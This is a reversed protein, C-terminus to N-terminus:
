RPIDYKEALEALGKEALEGEGNEFSEIGERIDRVTESYEIKNLFDQFSDADLVVLEAKGNVTLVLPRRSKKLEKLHQNTNRKFDTLSQISKINIM